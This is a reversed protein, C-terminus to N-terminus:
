MPQLYDDWFVLPPREVRSSPRDFVGAESLRDLLMMLWHTQIAWEPPNGNTEASSRFWNLLWENDKRRVIRRYITVLEAREQPGLKALFKALDSQNEFLGYV